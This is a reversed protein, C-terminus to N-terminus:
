PEEEGLCAGLEKRIRHLRSRVTGVPIGLAVAIERYSCGEWAFMTVLDRDEAGLADLAARVARLQDAATVRDDVALLPDTMALRVSGAARAYAREQRRDSRWQDRVVNAAIGFLWARAHGRGPDFTERRAVAIRFVEATVDAARDPDIRRAVFRYVDDAHRRFMEAVAAAPEPRRAHM